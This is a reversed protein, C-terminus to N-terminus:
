RLTTVAQRCVDRLAGEDDPLVSGHGVQEGAQPEVFDVAERGPVLETKRVGKQPKRSRVRVSAELQLHKQVTLPSRRRLQVSM